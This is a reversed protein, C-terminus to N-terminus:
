LDFGSNALKMGFIKASMGTKELVTQVYDAVKGGQRGDRTSGLFVIIRKAAM